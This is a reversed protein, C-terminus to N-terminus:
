FVEASSRPAGRLEASTRRLLEQPPARAFSSRPAGRLDQSLAGRLEASSRPAGRLDRSLPRKRPAREFSSKSIGRLYEARVNLMLM